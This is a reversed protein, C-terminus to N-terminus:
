ASELPPAPDYRDDNEAPVMALLAEMSARDAALSALWRAAAANDVGAVVAARRMMARLRMVERDLGLLRAVVPIVPM